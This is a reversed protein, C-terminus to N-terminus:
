MKYTIGREQNERQFGGIGVVRGRNVLGGVGMEQGPMGKYQLM